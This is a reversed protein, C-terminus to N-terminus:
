SQGAFRDVAVARLAERARPFTGASRTRGDKDRWRAQFKSGRKVTWGM